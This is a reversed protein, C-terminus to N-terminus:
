PLVPIARVWDETPNGDILDTKIAQYKFWAAKATIEM